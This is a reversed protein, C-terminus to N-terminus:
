ARLGELQRRLEDIAALLDAKTGSWDACGGVIRELQYARPEGREHDLATVCVASSAGILTWDEAIM